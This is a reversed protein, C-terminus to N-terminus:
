VAAIAGDVLCDISKCIETLEDESGGIPLRALKAADGLAHGDLYSLWKTLQLWPSIEKASSTAVFVNSAYQQKKELEEVESIM